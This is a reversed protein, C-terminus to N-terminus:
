LYKLYPKETSREIQFLAWLRLDDGHGHWFLGVYRTNWVFVMHQVFIISRISITVDAGDVRKGIAASTACCGTCGHVSKLTADQRRAPSTKSYEWHRPGPVVKVPLDFRFPHGGNVSLRRLFQCRKLPLRGQFRAPKRATQMRSTYPAILIPPPADLPMNLALDYSM